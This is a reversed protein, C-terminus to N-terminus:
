PELAFREPQLQAIRESVLAGPTADHETDPQESAPATGAGQGDGDVDNTQPANHAAEGRVERLLVGVSGRRSDPATPKGTEDRTTREGPTIQRLYRIVDVIERLRKVEAQSPRKHVTKEYDELLADACAVTRQWLIDTAERPPLDALKSAAKGIRRRALAVALDRVYEPSIKFPEVKRGRHELQGAAARECVERLKLGLDARAHAAADRQEDSFKEDFAPM